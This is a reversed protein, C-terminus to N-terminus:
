KLSSNMISTRCKVAMAHASINANQYLEKSQLLLLNRFDPRRMIKKPEGPVTNPVFVVFDGNIRGIGKGESGIDDIRLDIIDDKKPKDIL